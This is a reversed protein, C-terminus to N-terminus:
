TIEQFEQNGGSLNWFIIKFPFRRRWGQWQRCVYENIKKMLHYATYIEATSTADIVHM